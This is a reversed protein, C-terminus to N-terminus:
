SDKEQAGCVWGNIDETVGLERCQEMTLQSNGSENNSCWGIVASQGDLGPM